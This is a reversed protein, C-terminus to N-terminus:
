GTIPANNGVAHGDPDTIETQVTEENILVYKMNDMDLRWGNDPDIRLIQMMQLNAQQVEEMLQSQYTKLLTNNAKILNQLAIPVDLTVQKM